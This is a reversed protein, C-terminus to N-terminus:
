QISMMGFGSWNKKVFINESIIAPPLLNVSAKYYLSTVKEYVERALGNKDIEQHKSSTQDKLSLFYRLCARLTPLDNELLECGAGFYEVRKDISSSRTKGKPHNKLSEM